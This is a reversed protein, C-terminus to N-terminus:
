EDVLFRIIWEATMAQTQFARNPSIRKRFSRKWLTFDFFHKVIAFDSGSKAHISITHEIDLDYFSCPVFLSNTDHQNNDIKDNCLPIHLIFILIKIM